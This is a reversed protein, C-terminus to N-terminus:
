GTCMLCKSGNETQVLDLGDVSRFKMKLQTNRSYPRLWYERDCVVCRFSEMIYRHGGCTTCNEHMTSECMKCVIKNNM